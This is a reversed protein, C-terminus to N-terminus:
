RWIDYVLKAGATMAGLATLTLIVLTKMRPPVGPLLSTKPTPPMANIVVSIREGDDDDAWDKKIFAELRSIPSEPDDSAV